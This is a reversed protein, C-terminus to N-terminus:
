YRRAFLWWRPFLRVWGMSGAAVVIQFGRTMSSSHGSPRIVGRGRGAKSRRSHQRSRGTSSPSLGTEHSRTEAAQVGAHSLEGDADNARALIVREAHLKFRSTFGECPRIGAHARYRVLLAISPHFPSQLSLEFYRFRGHDHPRITEPSSSSFRLVCLPCAGRARAEARREGTRTRAISGPPFVSVGSSSARGPRRRKPAAPGSPHFSQATSIGIDHPARDPFHSFHVSPSFFVRADGGRREREKEAAPRRATRFRSHSQDTRTRQRGVRSRNALVSDRGTAAAKSLGLTRFLFLLGRFRVGAAFRNM